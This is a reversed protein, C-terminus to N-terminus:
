EPQDDQEQLQQEQGMEQPVHPKLQHSSCLPSMHEPSQERQDSSPEGCPCYREQTGLEKDQSSLLLLPLLPKGLKKTFLQFMTTLNFMHGDYEDVNCLWISHLHARVDDMGEFVM